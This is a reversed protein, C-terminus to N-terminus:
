QEEIQRELTCYEDYLKPFHSLLEIYHHKCLYLNDKQTLEGKPVLVLNEWDTCWDCCLDYDNYMKKITRIETSARM